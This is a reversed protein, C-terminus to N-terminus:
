ASAYSIEGDVNIGRDLAPSASEPSESGRAAEQSPQAANFLTRGATAMPGDSPSAADDKAAALRTAIQTAM